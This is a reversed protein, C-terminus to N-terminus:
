GSRRGASGSSTPTASAIRRRVSRWGDPLISDLVDDVSVAGLLRGTKDCVPLAVGDYAALLRAVEEQPTDPPVPAPGVDLCRLLTTSPPERLLRQFSVPGLYEGTPTTTPSEVVFVHAAEAVLLDPDRVLALAHAVTDSGLLIVPNPNMLGGATDAEYSLLRRVSGASAAEMASLLRDREEATLEGLTDAADDAEMEELVDAAREPDLLHILEVQDEDPLEAVLDALEEDELAEVVARRKEPSLGAVAVAMDAPHLHRLTALDQGGADGADFLYAVDRWPVSRSSRRRRLLGSGGVSVSEVRWPRVRDSRHVIAIDHVREGGGIPEDLLQRYALMEGARLHFRRLDVVGTRLRVGSGDIEGVRNANLFIERRQVSAVFGVVTPPEKGTPGAIVVDDIRGIPQGDADLLPLKVLRSVYVLSSEM